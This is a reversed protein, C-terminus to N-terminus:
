HVVHTAEKPQVDQIDTEPPSIAENILMVFTSMTPAMLSHMEVQLVQYKMSLNTFLNLDDMSTISGVKGDHQARLEQITDAFRNIDTFFVETNKDFEARNSGLKSVIEPNSIFTNVQEVFELLASTLTDKLESLDSWGENNKDLLDSDGQTDISFAQHVSKAVPTKTYAKRKPKTKTM